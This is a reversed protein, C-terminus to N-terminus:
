SAKRNRCRGGPCAPLSGDGHRTQNQRGKTPRGCYVCRVVRPRGKSDFLWDVLSRKM